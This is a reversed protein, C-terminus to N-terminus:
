HFPDKKLQSCSEESLESDLLVLDLECLSGRPFFWVKSFETVNVCGIALPRAQIKVGFFSSSGWGQQRVGPRQSHDGTWGLIQLFVQFALPRSITGGRPGNCVVAAARSLGHGPVTSEQNVALTRSKCTRGHAQSFLALNCSPSVFVGRPALWSVPSARPAQHGQVSLRNQEGELKRHYM